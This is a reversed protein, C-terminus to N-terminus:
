RAIKSGRELSGRHRPASCRCKPQHPLHLLSRNCSNGTCTYLIHMLSPPSLPLSLSPRVEREQANEAVRLPPAKRKIRDLADRRNAHFDPHYFTWSQNLADADIMRVSFVFLYSDRFHTFSFCVQPGSTDDDTNRIKHFDYKNLQRVFSAFNSHNYVPPLISKSFENM